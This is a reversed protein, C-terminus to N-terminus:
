LLGIGITRPPHANEQPRPVGTGTCLNHSRVTAPTKSLSLSLALSLSLSRPNPPPPSPSFLDLGRLMAPTSPESTSTNVSATTSCSGILSTVGLVHLAFFKREHTLSPEDPPFVHTAWSAPGRRFLSTHQFFSVDTITSVLDAATYADGRGKRVGHSCRIPV